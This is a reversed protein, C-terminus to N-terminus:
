ICVVVVQVVEVALVQVVELLVEQVQRMLYQKLHLQQLVICMRWEQGQQQVAETQEV